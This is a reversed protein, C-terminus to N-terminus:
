LGEAQVLAAAHGAFDPQIFQLASLNIALRFDPLGAQRWQQLQRAAQQLVWEGIGVILGNTEALPIFEAPSVQGWKPSHWRLLVEASLMQQHHLNLQPQFALWLEDRQQAAALASGLELKRLSNAQMEPP